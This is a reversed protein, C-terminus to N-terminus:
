CLLGKSLCDYYNQVLLHTLAEDVSIDRNAVYRDVYKRFTENNKYEAKLSKSDAM